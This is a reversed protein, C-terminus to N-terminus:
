VTIFHITDILESSNVNSVKGNFEELIKKELTEISEIFGSVMKHQKFHNKMIEVLHDLEKQDIKEKLTEDILVHIKRELVSISIMATVKHEVKSTGLTHFHETAKELTERDVEWSSLTLRKAWPFSGIWTTVLILVLFSLPWLVAHHFEFYYSFIFLLILTATIGFRFSAGPYPDSANSVVLLLECGTAEEFKKIKEEIIKIDKQEIFYKM